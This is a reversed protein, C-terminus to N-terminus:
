PTHIFSPSLAKQEAKRFQNNEFTSEIKYMRLLLFPSTYLLNFGVKGLIKGEMELIQNPGYADACVYVYDNLPPPYIEEYKSAIFLSTIGVLQFDHRNIISREIMRDVLNVAMFLTQERLKFKGHVDIIWDVLISRM